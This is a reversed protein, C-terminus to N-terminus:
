LVCPPPHHPRRVQCQCAGGSSSSSSSSQEARMAPPTFALCSVVHTRMQGDPSLLRSCVSFAVSVRVSPIWARSKLTISDCFVRCTLRPSSHTSPPSEAAYNVEPHNAGKKRRERGVKGGCAHAMRHRSLLMMILMDCMRQTMVELQMRM